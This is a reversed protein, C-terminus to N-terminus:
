EEPEEVFGQMAGIAGVVEDRQRELDAGGPGSEFHAEALLHEIRGLFDMGVTARAERPTDYVDEDPLPTTELAVRYRDGEQPKRAFRDGNVVTVLFVSEGGQDLGMGVRTKGDRMDEVGEVVLDGGLTPGRMERAM